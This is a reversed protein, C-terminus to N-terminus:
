ILPKGKSIADCFDSPSFSIELTSTKDFHERAVPFEKAPRM